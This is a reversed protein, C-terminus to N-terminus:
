RQRRRVCEEFSVLVRFHDRAEAENRYTWGLPRGNRYAEWRPRSYWHDRVKKLELDDPTVM